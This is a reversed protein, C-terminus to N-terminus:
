CVYVVRVCMFVADVCVCVNDVCVHVFVCACVCVSCVRARQHLRKLVLAACSVAYVCWVCMCVRVCVCARAYVCQVRVSASTEFRCSQSLLGATSVSEWRLRIDMM